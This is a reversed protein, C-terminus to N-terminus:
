AFRMTPLRPYHRVKFNLESYKEAQQAFASWRFERYIGTFPPAELHLLQLFARLLQFDASFLLCLVSFLLAPFPSLLFGPGRLLAIVM